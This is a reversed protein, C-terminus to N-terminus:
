QFEFLLVLPFKKLYFVTCYVRCEVLKLVESNIPICFDTDFDRFMVNQLLKVSPEFVPM